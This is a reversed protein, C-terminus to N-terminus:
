AGGNSAQYNGITLHHNQIMGILITHAERLKNLEDLCDKYTQYFDKTNLEKLFMENKKSLFEVEESLTQLTIQLSQKEQLLQEYEPALEKDMQEQKIQNRMEIFANM